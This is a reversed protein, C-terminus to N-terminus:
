AVGWAEARRLPGLLQAVMGNQAVRRGFEGVDAFGFRLDGAQYFDKTLLKAAVKVEPPVAPWGWRATISITAEGDVSSNSWDGSLLRVMTYPRVRGDVGTQNVQGPSVELQYVSAALTAGGNAIILGTTNAIDPVVLPDCVNRPPVFDRETAATPVVFTRQCYADIAAEAALRAAEVEPTSSAVTINLAALVEEDTVYAM